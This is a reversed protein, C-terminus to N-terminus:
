SSGFLRTRTDPYPDTATPDWPPVLPSVAEVRRNQGDVWVLRPIHAKVENRGRAIVPSLPVM